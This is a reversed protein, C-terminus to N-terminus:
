LCFENLNDYQEETTDYTKGTKQHLYETWLTHAGTTAAGAARFQNFANAKSAAWGQRGEGCCEDIRSRIRPQMLYGTVERFLRLYGNLVGM